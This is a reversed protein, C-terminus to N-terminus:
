RHHLIFIKYFVFNLITYNYYSYALHEQLLHQSFYGVFKQDKVGKVAVTLNEIFFVKSREYIIQCARMFLFFFSMFFCVKIKLKYALM